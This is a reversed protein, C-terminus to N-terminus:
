SRAGETHSNSDRRAWNICSMRVSDSSNKFDKYPVDILDKEGTYKYAITVVDKHVIVTEVFTAFIQKKYIQSKPDGDKFQELFYIVQDMTVKPANIKHEELKIETELQLKRTELEVLRDKTTDTFIGQEIAKMINNISTQTSQYEKQVAKLIANDINKEQLKTICSGIFNTVKDDIVFEKTAESVLDELWDKPISKTKCEKKNKKNQCTYYYYIAGTKSTGSDGILAGGCEGDYAKGSLLFEIDDMRNKGKKHKNSELKFQAKEFLEKSVIAPLGDERYIDKLDKDKSQFVLLGMYKPNKLLRIISSKDFYNGRLSRIGRTKLNHYIDIVREGAVYRNFIERVIPATDEDIIYKKDKDLKFGYPVLGGAAKGQLANDYLGRTVKQKLEESYYEDLAELVRELIIGEPGEPISMKSYIVKIGLKKLKRKHVAADYTNRAFRSTQYCIVYDFLGKEADKLMRLFDPRNDTKGTIHRDIYDHIVILGKEKALRHNERLQGTISEERQKAGESFRNYTVARKGNNM